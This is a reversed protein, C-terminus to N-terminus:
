CMIGWFLWNLNQNEEERRKLSETDELRFLFGINLLSVGM